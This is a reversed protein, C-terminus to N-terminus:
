APAITYGFREYAEQRESSHTEVWQCGKHRGGCGCERDLIDYVYFVDKTSGDKQHRRSGRGVKQIVDITSKGGSAQIVTAVEPIDVGQRFIPTSVLTDVTGNVLERVAREADNPHVKDNVFVADAGLLKMLQKQHHHTRVFVIRPAPSDKILRLIMRNRAVNDAIARKEWAAYGNAASVHEHHFPPMRIIAKATIGDRAAAAPMYKHLVEGFAGVIYITKKDGRDMPTGSFAVRIPANVCSMVVRLYGESAAGHCNHVVINNALYTHTGEVEINYVLGDPCLGGFRGDGGPELLEVSDVGTWVPPGKEQRGSGAVSRGGLLVAPLWGEDTWFPHGPTCVIKRGDRLHVRVLGKPKSRFLRVVPRQVFKGSQEDWSPVMDGVQISEIPRNGIMTGAPFCEDALVAGFRELESKPLKAASQVTAVLVRKKLERYGGGLRGPTIGAVSKIRDYMEKLLKLSTVIVLVPCDVSAVVSAITTGKGTGTAHQIIGRKHEAIAGLAASQHPWLSGSGYARFAGNDGRFATHVDVGRERLARCLRRALGAPFLRTSSLLCQQEEQGRFGHSRFTLYERVFSEEEFTAEVIKAYSYGIHLRM